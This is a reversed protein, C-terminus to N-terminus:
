KLRQTTPATLCSAVFEIRITNQSTHWVDQAVTNEDSASIHRPRGLDDRCASSARPTAREGRRSTTGCRSRWTCHTRTSSVEPTAPGSVSRCRTDRRLWRSSGACSSRPTRRGLVSRWSCSQPRAQMRHRLGPVLGSDNEQTIAHGPRHAAVSEGVLCTCWPPENTEGETAEQEHTPLDHQCPGTASHARRCCSKMAFGKRCCSKMAFRSCRRPSARRAMFSARLEVDTRRM